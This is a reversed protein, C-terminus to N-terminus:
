GLLPRRAVGEAHGARAVAAFGAVSWGAASLARNVETFTAGSTTVDDVAVVSLRHGLPPPSPAAFAGILNRQRDSAALGVQDGVARVVRIPRGVHAAIGESLLARCASTALRRSHDQGRGRVASRTSPCAMLLIPSTLPLLAVARALMAGLPRVLGLQGREKHAIVATRVDRQYRAATACAASSGPTVLPQWAVDRCHDCWAVGPRECALCSVGLLLDLLGTTMSTM